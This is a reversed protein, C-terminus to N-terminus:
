VCMNSYNYIYSNYIYIHTHTHTVIERFLHTLDIKFLSYLSLGGNQSSFYFHYDNSNALGLVTDLM